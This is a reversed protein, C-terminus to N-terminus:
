NYEVIKNYEKTLNRAGHVTAQEYSDEPTGIVKGVETTVINLVSGETEADAMLTEVNEKIETLSYEEGVYGAIVALPVSKPIKSGDSVPVLEGGSVQELREAQEIPIGRAM